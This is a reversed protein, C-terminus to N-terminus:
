KREAVETLWEWVHQRDALTVTHGQGKIEHYSFHKFPVKKFLDRMHQGFPLHPDRDGILLFVELEKAAELQDKSLNGPMGAGCVAVGKFTEPHTVAESAAFFGGGSFGFLFVNKPDVNFKAKMTDISELLAKEDNAHSFGKKSKANVAVQIFNVRALKLQQRVTAAIGNRSKMTNDARDGNGHLHIVLPWKKKAAYGDPLLYLFNSGNAKLAVSVPQDPQDEKKGDDARVSWLAFLTVVIAITLLNRM